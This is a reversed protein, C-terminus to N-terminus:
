EFLADLSPTQDRPAELNLTEAVHVLHEAMCAAARERDRAELADILHIHETHPCAPANVKDYLTIILCTLSTLERMLRSLIENGVMEAILTHFEGSLRIVTARDDNARAEKELRSHKRLARIQAPTITDCLLRVMDPEVMGRTVFVDRAQKITPSAVFAGRNPVLTVLGEHALRGLVERIKTRSVGALEALRDEVLRAGPALRQEQVAKHLRAYIEDNSFVRSARAEEATELSPATM